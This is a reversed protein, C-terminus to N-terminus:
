AKMFIGPCSPTIEMRELIRSVMWHSMSENAMALCKLLSTVSWVMMLIVLGNPAVAVPTHALVVSRAVRGVCNWLRFHLSHLFYAVLRWIGLLYMEVIVTQLLSM